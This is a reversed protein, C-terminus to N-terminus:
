ESYKPKYGVGNMGSTQLVETETKNSSDKLHKVVSEIYNKAEVDIKLYYQQCENLWDEEKQFETDDTILSAFAEHKLVLSEFANTVKLLADRVEDTPRKNSVLYELTRGQRTLGAKATRRGIKATKIDEEAM